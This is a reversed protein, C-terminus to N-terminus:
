EDPTMVVSSLTAARSEANVGIALRANSALEGIEVDNASVLTVSNKSALVNAKTPTSGRSAVVEVVDDATWGQGAVGTEIVTTVSNVRVYLRWNDAPGTTNMFVCNNATGYFMCLRFDPSYTGGLTFQYRGFAVGTGITCFVQSGAGPNALAHDKIVWGSSTTTDWPKGNESNGVPGDPRDFTDVVGPNAVVAM